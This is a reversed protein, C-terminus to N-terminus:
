HNYLKVFQLFEGYKGNWRNVINLCKEAYDNSLGDNMKRGEKIRTKKKLSLVVSLDKMKLNGTCIGEAAPTLSVLGPAFFEGLDGM